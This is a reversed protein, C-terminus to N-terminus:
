IKESLEIVEEIFYENKIFYSDYKTLDNNEILQRLKTTYLEGLESYRKLLPILELTKESTFRMQRFEKYANVRAITQFYDNVSEEISSYSRVYINTSDRGVLAKIRNEGAHYSWIGFVNNGEKFFRSSGWGSELAAQGLVISSSHPKLRRKLEQIEDCKYTEFLQFLFLSDMKIMFPHEQLWNEIHELRNIKQHLDHQSILISPLLMEVFKEKKEKVPLERLSIVKTYVYPTVSTDTIAHVDEKKEISDYQTRVSVHKFTVPKTCATHLLVLCIISFIITRM